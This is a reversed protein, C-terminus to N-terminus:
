YLRYGVDVATSGAPLSISTGDEGLTVGGDFIDAVGRLFRRELPRAPLAPVIHTFLLHRVGAQAATEAAQQPTTHYDHIDDFIQVLRSNGAKVAAGRMLGLLDKSLAEHVLLDVGQAHHAVNPHQATDGSIVLSRGAYDIRYGVAPEVPSHDVAFAQIRLGGDEFVTLAESGQPRDFTVARAGAGSPKILEAGHHAVRYGFDHRYALNFGAVIDEVGQPGHVPLPAAHGGGAWRQLMLEGLGDIHDSHFHTLFVGEVASLPVGMVNIHGAAGSGIDFVFAREGAVVLTCPGSRKPDPLPSGAGCLMVHLGDPLARFLEGSMRPVALREVAVRLLRDQFLVLTIGAGLALLLVLAAIKKM